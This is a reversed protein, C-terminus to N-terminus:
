ATSGNSADICVMSVRRTEAERLGLEVLLQDIEAELPAFVAPYQRHSWVILALGFLIIVIIGIRKM